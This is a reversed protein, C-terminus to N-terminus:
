QGAAIRSKPSFGFVTALRTRVFLQSMGFIEIRREKGHLGIESCVPVNYEDELTLNFYAFRERSAFSDNSPATMECGSNAESFRYRLPDDLLEPRISSLFRIGVSSTNKQFRASSNRLRGSGRNTANHGGRCLPHFRTSSAARFMDTTWTLPNGYSIVQIAKPAQSAPYFVSSTFLFVFFAFTSVIQFTESSRLVVSLRSRLRGSCYRAM